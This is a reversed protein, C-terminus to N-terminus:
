GYRELANQFAEDTPADIAGFVEYALKIQLNRAGRCLRKNGASHCLHSGNFNVVQNYIETLREASLAIPKEGSFPCSVCPASQCPMTKADIERM